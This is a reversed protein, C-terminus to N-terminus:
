KFLLLNSSTDEKESFYYILEEGIRIELVDRKEFLLNNKRIENELIEGKDKIVIKIGIKRKNKVEGVKIAKLGIKFIYM